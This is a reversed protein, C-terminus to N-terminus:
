AAVLSFACASRDFFDQVEKQCYPAYGAFPQDARATRTALLRVLFGSAFAPDVTKAVVVVPGPLREIRGIIKTAAANAPKSRWIGEEVMTADIEGALLADIQGQWAGVPKM